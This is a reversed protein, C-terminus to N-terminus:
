FAGDLVVLLTQDGGGFCFVQPGLADGRVSQADGAGVEAVARLADLELLAVELDALADAVLHALARCRRRQRM